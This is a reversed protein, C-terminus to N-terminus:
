KTVVIKNFRIKMNKAIVTILFMSVMTLVIMGSPAVNSYYSIVIGFVVSFVSMACSIFITKKFGKGLMLATINPIVILSSILLVGVLRISAIITISALIIFLTNIWTVNLGSVKAQNEDFIILVLKKYLIYIVPIVIAATILIMIVDDNSVLLINGFLLSFLNLTFGGSISILIVGIALGSTLLVAISSDPPIKTSERLKNVGVASLIAVIYATWLPYVGLFLGLSIGGFAVHALADGFLSHRKLVLFLGVISCIVSIAIASILARQMFGYQILDFVMEM